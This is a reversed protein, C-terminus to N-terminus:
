SIILQIAINCKQCCGVLELSNKKRPSERTKTNILNSHINEIAQNNAPIQLMYKKSINSNDRTREGGGFVKRKENAINKMLNKLLTAANNELEPNKASRSDKSKHNLKAPQIEQLQKMIFPKGKTNILDQAKQVSDRNVYCVDDGIPNFPTSEDCFV